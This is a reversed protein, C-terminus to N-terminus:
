STREPVKNQKWLLLSLFPILMHTILSNNFLLKQFIESINDSTMDNEKVM